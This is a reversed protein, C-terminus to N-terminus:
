EPGSNLQKQRAEINKLNMTQVMGAAKLANMEKQARLDEANKEVTFQLKAQADLSRAFNSMNPGEGGVDKGDGNGNPMGGERAATDRMRDEEAALEKATNVLYESWERLQQKAKKYLPHVKNSGPRPALRQNDDIAHEWLPMITELAKKQDQEETMPWLEAIREMHTEVHAADNQDPLIKVGSIQVPDRSTLPGHQQIANEVQQGPRQGPDSPAILNATRSGTRAQLFMRVANNKGSEDYLDYNQMVAEAAATRALQSGKGLGTNVQMEDINVEYLAELPVKRARLWNRLWWVEQGGPENQAYDKRSVRRMVEKLQRELSPFFLNMAATTLQGDQLMENQEQLNTKRELNQINPNASRGSSEGEFLNTMMGYLPLLNEQFPPVETTMFKNGHSVLTFYGAKRFPLSMMADENAVELHPTAAFMAADVFANITRTAAVVTYFIRSGHGRISHLDGNTGVGYTFFTMCRAMSHFSTKGEYLLQDGTSSGADAKCALHTVTGDVERVLLHIVEVQPARSGTFVDNDKWMKQYQEPDFSVNLLAAAQKIAEKVVPVNWGAKKAAEENQIKNFLTQCNFKSKWGCMDVMDESPKTEEPFKFHQLGYIRWRWDLEDEWSALSVGERVFLSVNTQWLNQFMPWRRLMLTFGEALVPEYNAREYEDGFKTPVTTLIDMSELMENYPACEKQISKFALGPNFNSRGYTGLSKNRADSYPPAGDVASQVLARNRARELDATYMAMFAAVVDSATRVREDVIETRDANTPPPIAALASPRASANATTSM